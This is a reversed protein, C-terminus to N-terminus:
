FSIKFLNIGSETSTEIYIFKAGGNKKYLSNMELLQVSISNYNHVFTHEHASAGRRM